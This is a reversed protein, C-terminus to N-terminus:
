IVTMKLAEPASSSSAVTLVSQRQRGKSLINYHTHICVLPIKYTDTDPDRHIHIDNIYMNNYINTRTQTCTNIMQMCTTVSLLDSGYPSVKSGKGGSVQLAYTNVFMNHYINSRWRLSQSSQRIHIDNIYM